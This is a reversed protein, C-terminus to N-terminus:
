NSKDNILLVQANYKVKAKNTRLIKMIMQSSSNLVGGLLNQFFGSNAQSLESGQLINTNTTLERVIERFRSNPVYLGKLGDLDYITLNIPLIEEELMVSVVNLHVRQISFGSIQAYLFTGKPMKHEGVYTDELLRLRLRYGLYGTINEDVVARIFKSQKKKGIHNFVRKNKPEKLVEMTSNLFEEKKKANKRLRERSEAESRYEPDQAQRMSDLMFMQEKLMKTPNNQEAEIQEQKRRREEREEERKEAEPDNGNLLQLLKVQREFEKDEESKEGNKQPTVNEKSNSKYFPTEGEKEAINQTNRQMEEAYRLSDIYRKEDATLNDTYAEKETQKEEELGGIMTRDDRSQYFRQYAENKNYIKAEVEGLSTNIGVQSRNDSPEKKEFFSAFQYTLFLIFPLFLLPMVYKKQKFNIKKLNM